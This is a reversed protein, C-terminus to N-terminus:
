GVRVCCVCVCWVCACLVGWVCAVCVRVCCVILSHRGLRFGARGLMGCASVYLFILLRYRYVCVCAWGCVYM